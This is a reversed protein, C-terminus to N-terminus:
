SEIIKRYWEITRDLGEDLLIKPKWKLINQALTIDPCRKKPDDEPLEYFAIESINSLKENVLRAFDLMNYEVPNGLNVPRKYNSSMLRILGQVM